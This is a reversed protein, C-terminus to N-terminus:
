DKEEKKDVVRTKDGQLEEEDEEEYEEEDDAEEDSCDTEEEEESESEEKNSPQDGSKENCECPDASKTTVSVKRLEKVDDLIEGRTSMVLSLIALNVAMSAISVLSSACSILAVASQSYDPMAYVATACSSFMLASLFTMGGLCSDKRKM